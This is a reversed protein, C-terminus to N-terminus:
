HLRLVNYPLSGGQETVSSVEPGNNSVMRRDRGKLWKLSNKLSQLIDKRDQPVSEQSTSPIPVQQQQFYPATNESFTRFFFPSRLSMMNWRDSRIRPDFHSQSISASFERDSEIESGRRLRSYIEELGHGETSSPHRWLRELDNSNSLDQPGPHPFEACSSSRHLGATASSSEVLGGPFDLVYRDDTSIYFESPHDPDGTLRVLSHGTSHSRSFTQSRSELPRLNNVIGLISSNTASPNAIAQGPSTMSLGGLPNLEITGRGNHDVTDQPGVVIVVQEAAQSLGRQPQPQPQAEMTVDNFQSLLSSRCLPCTTHSFLWMDICDPHFAHGCKPLLRLTEDEQFESLCVVCEMSGKGLKLGKVLSYRFLPFSEILSTDLGQSSRNMRRHGSGGRRSNGGTDEDGTCRRVYISFFGMFFFASLLVVIIIAMSPNFRASIDYPNSYPNESSSSDNISKNSSFPYPSIPSVSYVSVTSIDTEKLRRSRSTM